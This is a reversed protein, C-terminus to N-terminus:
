FIFRRAIVGIALSLIGAIFVPITADGILCTVKVGDAINAADSCSMASRFNTVEPMLFNLLTFGIILIGLFSLISLGLIQGKNNM